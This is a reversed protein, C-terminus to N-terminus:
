CYWVTYQLDNCGEQESVDKIGDTTIGNLLKYFITWSNLQKNQFGLLM